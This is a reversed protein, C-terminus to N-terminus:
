GADHWLKRYLNIQRCGTDRVSWIRLSQRGSKALNALLEAAQARHDARGSEVLTIGRALARRDGNLIKDSLSSVEM